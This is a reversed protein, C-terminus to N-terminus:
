LLNFHRFHALTGLTLLFLISSEEAKASAEMRTLVIAYLRLEPSTYNTLQNIPLYYISCDV